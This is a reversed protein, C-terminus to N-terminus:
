TPVPALGQATAMLVDLGNSWFSFCPLKKVWVARSSWGYVHSHSRTLAHDTPDHYELWLRRLTDASPSPFGM